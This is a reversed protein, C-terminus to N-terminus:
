FGDFAKNLYKTFHHILLYTDTFLHSNDSQMVPLHRNVDIKWIQMLNEKKQYIALKTGLIDLIKSFYRNQNCMHNLLSLIFTFLSIRFHRAHKQKRHVYAKNIHQHFTSLEREADPVRNYVIRSYIYKKINRTQRTRIGYFHTLFFLNNKLHREKNEFNDATGFIFIFM